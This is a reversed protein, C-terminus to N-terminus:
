GTRRLIAMMAGKTKSSKGIADDRGFERERRVVPGAHKALLLPRRSTGLITASMGSTFTQNTLPLNNHPM